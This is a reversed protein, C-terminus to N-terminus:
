GEVMRKLILGLGGTAVQLPTNEKKNEIYISAGQSVLLKTEEVREEDCALHGQSSGLHVATAEFYDKADPNAGGELLMIAIELRNKSAAYHLPTCGDQNVANVQAGKGLLAKVTEDWGASADIHLPTCGADDKDNVPVGRQLLFEVIETHGASCAWHLVTRNDQDTKTALSKDALIREKLEEMKGNYALNCVMLNSMCGRWKVKRLSETFDSESLNYKNLISLSPKSCLKM